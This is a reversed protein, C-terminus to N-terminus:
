RVVIEQRFGDTKVAWTGAQLSPVDCHAVVQPGCRNCSAGEEVGERDSYSVNVDLTLMKTEEDVEVSCEGPEYTSCTDSCSRMVLTMKFDQGSPYTRIPLGEPTELSRGGCSAALFLAFFGLRTWRM